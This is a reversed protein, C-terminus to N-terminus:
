TLARHDFQLASRYAWESLTEGRLLAAIEWTVAHRLEVDPLEIERPLDNALRDILRIPVSLKASHQHWSSLGSRAGHLLHSIYASHASWLEVEPRQSTSLHNLRDVLPLDSIDALSDIVLRRELVVSAATDPHLQRHRAAERLGRLATGDKLWLTEIHDGPRRLLPQGLNSGLPLSEGVSDHPTLGFDEIGGQGEIARLKTAMPMIRTGGLFFFSFGTSFRNATSRRVAEVFAM